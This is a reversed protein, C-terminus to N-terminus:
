EDEEKPTFKEIVAKQAEKDILKWVIAAVTMGNAHFNYVEDILDGVNEYDGADFGQEIMADYKEQTKESLEGNLQPTVQINDLSFEGKKHKCIVSYFKSFASPQRKGSSTSKAKAKTKTKTKTETKAMAKLKKNFLEILKDVTESVDNETLGDEIINGDNDEDGEFVLTQHFIALVDKRSISM